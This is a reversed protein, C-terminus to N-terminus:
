KKLQSQTLLITNQNGLYLNDIPAGVEVCQPSANHIGEFQLCEQYWNSGWLYFVGENTMVFSHQAGCGISIIDKSRSISLLRPKNENDVVMGLQFWRNDGWCFVNGHVDLAVNHHHGCAITKIKIRRSTFYRLKMPSTVVEIRNFALQGFDNMGFGWVVGDDDLMLTHQIGCVIQLIHVDMAGGDMKHWGKNSTNYEILGPMYRTQYVENMDCFMQISLIINDPLKWRAWHQIIYPVVISVNCLAISYKAACQVDIVGTISDVFVPSHRDIKDGLGLQYYQNSGHAYAQHQDSIWFVCNSSVNSCIGIIKIKNGKFFTIQECKTIITEKPNGFYQACGAVWINYHHDIVIITDMTCHISKVEISKNHKTWSTLTTVCKTHKLGLEGFQNYGIVYIHMHEMGNKHKTTARPDIDHYINNKKSSCTGMSGM